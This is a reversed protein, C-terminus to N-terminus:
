TTRRLTLTFTKYRASVDYGQGATLELVLSVTQGPTLGSSLVEIPVDVFYAGAAISWHAGSNFRYHTGEVATSTSVRTLTGSVGNSAQATIFNVRVNTNQNATATRTFTITRVYNGAPLVPAFEVLPPGSYTHEPDDFLLDECATMPLVLLALVPAIALRKM